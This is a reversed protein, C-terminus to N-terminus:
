ALLCGLDRAVHLNCLTRASLGILRFYHRLLIRLIRLIHYLNRATQARMMEMMEMMEMMQRQTEHLQFKVDVSEARSTHPETKRNQLGMIAVQSAM